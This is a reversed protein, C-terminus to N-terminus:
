STGASDEYLTLIDTPDYRALNPTGDLRGLPVASKVATGASFAM